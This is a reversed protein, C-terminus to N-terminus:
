KKSFLHPYNIKIFQEDFDGSVADYIDFGDIDLGVNRAMEELELATKYRFDELAKKKDDNKEIVFAIYYEASANYITDYCKDISGYKAIIQEKLSDPLSNLHRKGEM